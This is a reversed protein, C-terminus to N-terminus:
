VRGCERLLLSLQTTQPGLVPDTSWKEVPLEMRNSWNLASIAGPVNFRLTSMFLDTIMFITQWSNSRFVTKIMAQHIEPSFDPFGKATDIGCWRMMRLMEARSAAADSTNERINACWVEWM